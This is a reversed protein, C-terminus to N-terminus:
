NRRIRSLKPPNQPSLHPKQNNPTRPNPGSPITNHRARRWRRASNHRSSAVLNHPVALPPAPACPHGLTPTRSTPHLRYFTHLPTHRTSPTSSTLHSLNLHSPSCQQTTASTPPPRHTSPVYCTRSYIHTTHLLISHATRPSQM